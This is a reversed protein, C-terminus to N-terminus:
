KTGELKGLRADIEGFKELLIDLADYIENRSPARKMLDEGLSARMHESYTKNM